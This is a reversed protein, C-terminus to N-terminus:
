QQSQKAFLAVFESGAQTPVFGDELRHILHARWLLALSLWGDPAILNESLREFSLEGDEVIKHLIFVAVDNSAAQALLMHHRSDQSKVESRLTEIKAQQKAIQQRLSALEESYSRTVEEFAAIVERPKENSILCSRYLSMLLDSKTVKEQALRYPLLPTASMYQQKTRWNKSSRRNIYALRSLNTAAAEHIAADPDSRPIRVESKNVTSVM